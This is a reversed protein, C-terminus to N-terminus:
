IRYAPTAGHSNVSKPSGSPHFVTPKSSEPQVAVVTCEALATPGLSPYSWIVQSALASNMQPGSRSVLLVIKHRNVTAAGQALRPRSSKTPNQRIGYPERSVCYTYGIGSNRFRWGNFMELLIGTHQGLRLPVVQCVGLEYQRSARQYRAHICRATNQTPKYRVNSSYWERM